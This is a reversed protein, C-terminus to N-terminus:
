FMEELFEEARLGELDYLVVHIVGDFGEVFIKGAESAEEEWEKDRKEAPKDKESFQVEDCLEEVDV